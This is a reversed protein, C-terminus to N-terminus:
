GDSDKEERRIKVVLEVIMGDRRTWEYGFSTKTEGVLACLYDRVVCLAEDTCERKELWLKEKSDVRGIYITNTIPSVGLKIREIPFSM